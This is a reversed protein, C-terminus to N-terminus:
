FTFSTQVGAGFEDEDSYLAVVDLNLVGFPSFGLGLSYLDDRTDELDHRVGARIQVWDFANLELGARAFKTAEGTNFRDQDTLDVDLAVSLFSSNYAFGATVLTTVSYMLPEATYSVVEYDDEVLDKAVLGFSFSESLDVTVGLDLNFNTDDFRYQDADFNSEDFAEVDVLYNFTDVRQMKPSLGFGVNYGAVEFSKALTVGFDSVAAGFINASSDLDNISYGSLALPDTEVILQDLLDVDVQSILATGSVDLKSQAFLTFGVYKNPISFAFSASAEASSSKGDLSIFADRLSVAGDRIADEDVSGSDLLIDLEDYRLQLVDAKDYLDDSNNLYASFSPLLLGFDDNDEYKSLLAPNVFSASLYNSSAVGAGGMSQLRVEAFASTSLALISLSLLTKKM